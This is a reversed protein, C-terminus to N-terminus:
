RSDALLGRDDFATSARPASCACNEPVTPRCSNSPGGVEGSRASAVTRLASRASTSASAPCDSRGPSRRASRRHACRAAGDPTGRAVGIEDHDVSGDLALLEVAKVACATIVGCDISTGESATPRRGKASRRWQAVILVRTFSRCRPSEAPGRPWCGPAAPATGTAPSPGAPGARCGAQVGIGRCRHLRAGRSALDSDVLTLPLRDARPRSISPLFRPSRVAVAVM